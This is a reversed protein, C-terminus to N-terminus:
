IFIHSMYNLQYFSKDDFLFNPNLNQRYWFFLLIIIIIIFDQSSLKKDDYILHWINWIM